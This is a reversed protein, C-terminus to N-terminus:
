AVEAFVVIEGMDREGGAAEPFAELIANYAREKQAAQFARVRTERERSMSKLADLEAPIRTSAVDGYVREVGAVALTTLVSHNGTYSSPEWATYQTVAGNRTRTVAIGNELQLTTPM